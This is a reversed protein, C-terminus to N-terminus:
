PRNRLRQFLGFLVDPWAPGLAYTLLRYKYPLSSRFNASGVQSAFNFFDGAARANGRLSFQRGVSWIYVALADGLKPDSTNILSHIARELNRMEDDAVLKRNSIRNQDDHLCQVYIDVPFYLFSFGAQVLRLHLNWEQRSQLSTDLGGVKNLLVLRHMPSSTPLNHHILSILQEEPNRAARIKTFKQTERGGNKERIVNGFPIESPKADLAQLGQHELASPLLYDDADLFKVLETRCAQLGRNRASNAGPRPEHLVILGKYDSLIELTSDTSGNDVVIVESLMSQSIVSELAKEIYEEGNRVPIIVSVSPSM